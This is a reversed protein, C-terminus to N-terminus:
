GRRRVRRPAPLLARARAADRARVRLEHPVGAPGHYAPGPGLPVLVVPVGAQDLVEAWMRAEAEGAYRAVPVDPPEPPGPSPPPPPLVEVLRAGCDLCGTVWPQYESRCAPCFPM